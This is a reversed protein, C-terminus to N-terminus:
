VKPHDLIPTSNLTIQMYACKILPTISFDLNTGELQKIANTEGRTYNKAEVIYAFPM